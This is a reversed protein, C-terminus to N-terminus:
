PQEAVTPVPSARRGSSFASPATVTVLILAMGFVQLGVLNQGLVVVRFLSAPVTEVMAVISAVAPTTPNLDVIYLTFSLVVFATSLSAM